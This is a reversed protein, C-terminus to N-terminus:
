LQHASTALAAARRLRGFPDLEEDEVVESAVAVLAVGNLHIREFNCLKSRGVVRAVEGRGDDIHHHHSLQGEGVACSVRERLRRAVGRGARQWPLAVM